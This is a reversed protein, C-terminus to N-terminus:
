PSVEKSLQREEERLRQRKRGEIDEKECDDEEEGDKWEDVVDM